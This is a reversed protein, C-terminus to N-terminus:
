SEVLLTEPVQISNSKLYYMLEDVKKELRTHKVTMDQLNKEVAKFDSITLYPEAQQYMERKKEESLTYYTDMYFRHGIIAEAFDRGVNNGVTTRFFKRFNHFHIANRNYGVKMNLDPSKKLSDALTKQLLLKAASIPHVKLEKDSKIHTKSISTRGFLYKGDLQHNPEKEKWDFYRTLYEKLYETAESTLFTERGDGTKTTEARIRIKTPTSEFDIDDLRIQVLEGIRVGSAICFIICTQMKFSVQRLLKAILAKTMPMEVPKTKRPMRVTQKFDEAYIKIGGYRLFSKVAAIVTGVSRPKLGSKDLYIVFDRLFEYVDRKNTKLEHVICDLDSNHEETVYKQLKNIGTNYTRVSDHSHARVYISDLFKEIDIHQM